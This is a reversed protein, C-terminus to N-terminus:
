QKLLISSCHCLTFWYGPTTRMTRIPLSSGTCTGSSTISAKRARSRSPTM